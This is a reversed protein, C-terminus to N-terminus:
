VSIIFIMEAYHGLSYIVIVKINLGAVEGSILKQKEQLTSAFLLKKWM